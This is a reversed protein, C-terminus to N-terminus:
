DITLALDNTAVKFQDGSDILKSTALAGFALMNGGTLSDMCAVHTATGQAASAVPFLVDASNRITGASYAGFTIPQRAYGGGSVETGGGAKSPASTFLALYITSPATYATGRFLHDVIKGELYTTLVATNVTFVANNAPVYFQGGTSVTKPAAFAAYALMNGAASADSLAGHTITGWSTTAVPYTLQTTNKTQQSSLAGFTVAQRAYPSGSVEAGGGIDSPASTYLGLYVASPPTFDIGRFIHELMKQESYNTFSFTDPM